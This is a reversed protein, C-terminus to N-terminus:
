ASGFECISVSIVGTFDKSILRSFTVHDIWRDDPFLFKNGADLIAKILNDLDCKHGQAAPVMIIGMIILPTRDPFMEEDHLTMCEKFKLQLQAESTLYQQAQM